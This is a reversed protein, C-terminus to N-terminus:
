KESESDYDFTDKIFETIAENYQQDTIKKAKLLGELKQQFTELHREDFTKYKEGFKNKMRTSIEFIIQGIEYNTLASIPIKIRANSTDITETLNNDACMKASLLSLFYEFDEDEILLSLTDSNATAKNKLGIRHLKEAADKSLSTYKTVAIVNPDDTPEKQLGLLYDTSVNYYKAMKVVASIPCEATNYKYKNFTPYPIGMQEAQKKDSLKYDIDRKNETLKELRESLIQTVGCKAM